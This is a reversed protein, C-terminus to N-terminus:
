PCQNLEKKAKDCLYDDVFYTILTSKYHGYVVELNAQYRYCNDRIPCCCGKCHAIDHNM